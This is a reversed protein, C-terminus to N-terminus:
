RLSLKKGKHTNTHTHTNQKKRAMFTIIIENATDTYSYINM